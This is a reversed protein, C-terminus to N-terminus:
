VKTKPPRGRRKPAPRSKIKKVQENIKEDNLMKELPHGESEM